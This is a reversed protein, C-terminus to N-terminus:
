GLAILQASCNGTPYTASEGSLTSCPIRSKSVYYSNLQAPTLLLPPLLLNPGAGAGASKIPGESDESDEGDM